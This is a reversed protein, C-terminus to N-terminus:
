QKGTAEMPFKIYCVLHSEVVGVPKDDLMMYLYKSKSYQQYYTGEVLIFGPDWTCDADWPNVMSQELTYKTRTCKLIFFDRCKGNEEKARVVFNDGVEVMDSLFDADDGEEFPLAEDLPDEAECAEETKLVPQLVIPQWKAVRGINDCLAFDSRM